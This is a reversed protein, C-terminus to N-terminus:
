PAPENGPIPYSAACKDNGLEREMESKRLLARLKTKLTTLM